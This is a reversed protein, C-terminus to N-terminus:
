PLTRRGIDDGMSTMRQIAVQSLKYGQTSIGKKNAVDAVDSGQVQIEDGARPAGIM